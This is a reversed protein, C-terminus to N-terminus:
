RLARKVLQINKELNINSIFEDIVNILYENSKPKTNIISYLEMIEENSLKKLIELIGNNWNITKYKWKLSYLIMLQKRLSNEECDVKKNLDVNENNTLYPTAVYTVRKKNFINNIYNSIFIEYLQHNSAILIQNDHKIHMNFMQWLLDIDINFKQGNVNVFYDNEREKSVLISKNFFSNFLNDFDKKLYTPYIMIDRALNNNITLYLNNEYYEKCESKCINCTIRGDNISYLDGNKNYKISDKPIQVKGCDCRLVYKKQMNIFDMYILKEVDLLYKSANSEDKLIQYNNIGFDSIKNIYNDLDVNKDEYSNLLNFSMVKDCSIANSLADCLLPAIVLGTKINKYPKIPMTSVVVDKM